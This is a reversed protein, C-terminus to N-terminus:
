TNKLKRKQLFADGSLLEHYPLHNWFRQVISYIKLIAATLPMMISDDIHGLRVLRRIM